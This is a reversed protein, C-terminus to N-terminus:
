MLRLNFTVTDEKEGAKIHFNVVWWGPMQFKMGEVLYVGGPLEQTVFPQTPLGHGHEPMRGEVSIEAGTVPEGGPTKVTLRWGHFRNVAIPNLESEYSVKFLGKGSMVTTSTDIDKPAEMIMHEHEMGRMEAEEVHPFDFVVSDTVGEKGVDIRLEWHGPMMIDINEVSYLGGGREVVVPEERVGHGMEPMWPTLKIDAGMVDADTWDHVIIDVTNVGTLLKNGLIVMEVSYLGAETVEFLSEAYHRTFKGEGQEHMGSVRGADALMLVAVLVAALFALSTKM